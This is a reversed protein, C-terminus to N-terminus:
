RILIEKIICWNMTMVLMQSPDWEPLIQYRYGGSSSVLTKEEPHFEDRLSCSSSILHMKGQSHSNKEM